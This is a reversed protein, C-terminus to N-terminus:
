PNRRDPFGDLRVRQQDVFRNVQEFDANVTSSDVLHIAHAPNTGRIGNFNRITCDVVRGNVNGTFQIAHGNKGAGDLLCREILLDEVNWGVQICNGENVAAGHGLGKDFVCDHIWIARAPDSAMAKWDRRNQAGQIMINPGRLGSVELGQPHTMKFAGFMEGTATCDAIVSDRLSNLAL